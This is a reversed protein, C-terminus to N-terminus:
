RIYYKILLYVHVLIFYQLYFNRHKQDSHEEKSAEKLLQLLVFRLKMYKCIFAHVWKM